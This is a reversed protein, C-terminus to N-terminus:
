EVVRVQSRVPYLLNYVIIVNGNHLRICGRSSPTGITEPDKTGHIGFGTRGVANGTIGELGIWRSGLAYGPDGYHLIQGSVPDPWPPKVMKGDAKVQWLGTPTKMDPKGVGVHFSKIFTDQLYVDMTFASLFVKANFPGNIVKLTQSAKLLEPRKINNLQMILEYPIKFEKAITRLQDGPKVRYTTCLNDNPFLKRSFLWVEALDSLHKKIIFQQQKDNAMPLLENLKDRAEIIRPPLANAAQMADAIQKSIQSDTEVVIEKEVEITKEEVTFEVAGSNDEPEPTTEPEAIPTSIEATNDDDTKGFPNYGKWLVVMMTVVLIAVLFYVWTLRKKKGGYGSYYKAM